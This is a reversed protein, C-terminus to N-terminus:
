MENPPVKRHRILEVRHLHHRVTEHSLARHADGIADDVLQLLPRLLVVDRQSHHAVATKLADATVGLTGVSIIADYVPAHCEADLDNCSAVILEFTAYALNRANGDFVDARM